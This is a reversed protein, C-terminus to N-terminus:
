AALNSRASLPWRESLIDAYVALDEESFCCFIAERLADWRVLSKSLTSRWIPLWKLPFGTCALGLARSPLQNFTTRRPLCWLGRTAHHWYYHSVAHAVKWVPGVTHIVFKPCLNYGKTIKADGAKCENLTRCAALLEPGAARHIAGDVGGGGLLSGNAANVIADVSLEAIDAKIAKRSITM